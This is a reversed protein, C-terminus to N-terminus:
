LQLPTDAMGSHRAESLGQLGQFLHNVRFLVRQMVLTKVHGGLGAGGGERSPGKM